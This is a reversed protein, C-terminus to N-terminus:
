MANDLDDMQREIKKRVEEYRQEDTKNEELFRKLELTNRAKDMAAQAIAESDVREKSKDVINNNTNGGLSSFLSGGGGTNDGGEQSNNDGTAGKESARRMPGLALNALPSGLLIDIIVAVSVVLPVYQRWSETTEDASLLTSSCSLEPVLLNLKTDLSSSSSRRYIRAATAAAAGNNQTDCKVTHFPAHLPHRHHSPTFSQTQTILCCCVVCLLLFSLHHSLPPTM